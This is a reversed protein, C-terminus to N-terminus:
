KMNKWIFNFFSNANILNEVTFLNNLNKNRATRDINDRMKRKWLLMQCWNANWDNYKWDKWSLMNCDNDYIFDFILEIETWIRHNEGIDHM